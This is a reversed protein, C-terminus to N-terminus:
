SYRGLHYDELDGDNPCDAPFKRGEDVIRRVAPKSILYGAGGSTYGHPIYNQILRGLYVQSPGRYEGIVHLLNEWVIYRDIM